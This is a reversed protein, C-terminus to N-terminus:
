KLIFARQAQRLNFGMQFYCITSQLRKVGEVQVLEFCCDIVVHLGSRYTGEDPEVHVLM